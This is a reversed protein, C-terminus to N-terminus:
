RRRRLFVFGGFLAGVVIAYTSPEPIVTSINLTASEQFRYFNRDTQSEYDPAYLVLSLIGDGDIATQAASIFDSSSAFTITMGDTVATVDYGLVSSLANGSVNGGDPTLSNWTVTDENFQEGMDKLLIDAYNTGTQDSAVWPGALLSMSISEVTTGSLGSLDFQVVGRLNEMYYKDHYGVLFRAESEFNNGAEDGGNASRVYGDESSTITTASSVNFLAALLFAAVCTKSHSRIHTNM